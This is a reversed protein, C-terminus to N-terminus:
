IGPHIGALSHETPHICIRWCWPVLGSKIPCLRTFVRTCVHLFIHLLINGALILAGKTHVQYASRGSENFVRTSIYLTYEGSSYVVGKAHVRYTSRGSESFVRTSIYLTYEGSCNFLM